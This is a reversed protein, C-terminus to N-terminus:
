YYGGDLSAVATAVIEQTVWTNTEADYIITYGDQLNASDVNSLGQVTLSGDLKKIVVAGESRSGANVTLSNVRSNVVQNSGSSVTSTQPNVVVATESRAGQSVVLASNNRSVVSIAM